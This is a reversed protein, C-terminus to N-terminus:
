TPAGQKAHHVYAQQAQRAEAQDSFPYKTHGIIQYDEHGKGAILVVDQQAASAIAWHIAQKRDVEVRSAARPLGATIDRVIAAADESRPNDSTVIIDDAGRAAAQAMLPRKSRDRDGGCGFVVALKGQRQLATPRLASLAKDLADPTHAYDVVALPAGYTHILEMRGSVSQVGVCAQVAQEMNHSYLRVVALAALFNEVNHQGIFSVAVPTQAQGHKVVFGMGVDRTQIDVAIWDAKGKADYTQVECQTKHKLQEAWLRGTTGGVNMVAHKLAPWNFLKRKAAAYQAMDGHYDLHDQTLNTFVAAHIRAGNLRGEEIGISSAELAVAKAGEDLMKKMFRQLQVQDPTTMGTDIINGMYYSGLTGIVACPINIKDLSQAIWNVVTTKGNTGTVAIVDLQHSPEGYFLSAINGAQMKLDAICVCREGLEDVDIGQADVVCAAAGNALAKSVYARGDQTYGQYAVFVDGKEIKRSDASLEASASVRARLWAVVESPTHLLTAKSM